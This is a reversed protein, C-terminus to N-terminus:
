LKGANASFFVALPRSRSDQQGNGEHAIRQKQAPNTRQGPSDDSGNPFGYREIMRAIQADNQGQGNNQWLSQEQSGRWTVSTRHRGILKYRAGNRRAMWFLWVDDAFPCLAFAAERDGPEHHLIGPPYLIGGVGTPFYRESEGRRKVNMKWGCYPNLSNNSDFSFEHARHCRVVNHDEEAGHILEELWTPWYYIDDDATCIFAAPFADLAPLIKKYSRTDDTRRIELGRSQLKLVQRPLLDFDAHAIWLITRDPKVTQRLLSRLTLALTPYRAPYSTLSVILPGPLAHPRKSLEFPSHLCLRAWGLRCERRLRFSASQYTRHPIAYLQRLARIM